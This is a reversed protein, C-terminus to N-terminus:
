SELVVSGDKTLTGDEYGVVVGGEKCWCVATVQIGVRGTNNTSTAGNLGVRKKAKGISM